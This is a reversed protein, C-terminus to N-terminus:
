LAGTAPNEVTWRVPGWVRHVKSEATATYFVEANYTSNVALAATNATSLVFTGTGGAQSTYTAAVTLAPSSAGLLTLRLSLSRGSVTMDVATGSADVLAFTPARYTGRVITSASM